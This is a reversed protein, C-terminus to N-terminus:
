SSASCQQGTRTTAARTSPLLMRAVTRMVPTAFFLDDFQQGIEALRAALVVILMDAVDLALGKLAIFDRREAVRWDRVLM